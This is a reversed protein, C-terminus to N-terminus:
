HREEQSLIESSSDSPCNCRLSLIWFFATIPLLIWTMYAGPPPSLVILPKMLGICARLVLELLQIGLMFSTLQRYRIIIAMGMMAEVFQSAGWQGVIAVLNAGSDGKLAIGAISLAGSDPAFMHILSRITGFVSTLILFYLPAKQSIM